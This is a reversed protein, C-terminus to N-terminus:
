VSSTPRPARPRARLPFPSAVPPPLTASDMIKSVLGITVGAFLALRPNAFLNQLLVVALVALSSAYSCLLRDSVRPMVERIRSAGSALVLLLGVVGVVGLKYLWELGVIHWGVRVFATEKSGFSVIDIPAMGYSNWLAGLGRGAAVDVVDTNADLSRLEGFRQSTSANPTQLALSQVTYALDSGLSRAPGAAIALAAALALVALVGALRRPSWLGRVLLVAALLVLSARRLSFLDMVVVAGVFTVALAQLRPRLLGDMYLGWAVVAAFGVLLTDETIILATRRGDSSVFSTTGILGHRVVLFATIAALVGALATVLLGVQHGSLWMRSVVLYGVAVMAVREVDFAQYILGPEGRALAFLHLAGILTGLGLVHLDLRSRREGAVATRLMWVLALALFGIEIVNLGAVPRFTWASEYAADATLLGPTTSAAITPPSYPSLAAVLLFLMAGREFAGATVVLADV